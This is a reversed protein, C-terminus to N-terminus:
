LLSSFIMNKTARSHVRHKKLFDLNTMVARLIKLVQFIVMIDILKWMSTFFHKTLSAYANLFDDKEEINNSVEYAFVQRKGRVELYIGQQMQIM